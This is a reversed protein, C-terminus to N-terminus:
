TTPQSEQPPSVPVAVMSCVLDMYRDCHFKPALRGEQHAADLFNLVSTIVPRLPEGYLSVYRELDALSAYHPRPPSM